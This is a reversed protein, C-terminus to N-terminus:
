LTKSPRDGGPAPPSHAKSAQATAVACQNATDTARGRKRSVVSWGSCQGAVVRDSQSMIINNDGTKSVKKQMDYSLKSQVTSQVSTDYASAGIFNACVAVAGLKVTSLVAM